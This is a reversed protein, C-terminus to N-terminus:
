EREDERSDSRRWFRLRLPAKMGLVVLMYGLILLLEFVTRVGAGLWGDILDGGAWLNVVLAMMALVHM